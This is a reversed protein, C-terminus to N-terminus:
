LPHELFLTASLGPVSSTITQFSSIEAGGLRDTKIISRVIEVFFRMFDHGDREQM